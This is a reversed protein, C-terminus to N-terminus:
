IGDPVTTLRSQDVAHDLEALGVADAVITGSEYRLQALAQAYSLEAAVEDLLSQTLRDETLILDVVTSLGLQLKDREDTVASRYLASASRTAEVRAASQRLGNVAVAVNASIIRSVDGAQITAQRYAADSRALVGLARNNATEWDYVISAAANFGAAALPTFLRGAASGEDLGSYGATAAVNMQPRLGDLAATQLVRTERQRQTAAAVDHRHSLAVRILREVLNANALAQSEVPPFREGVLSLSAMQDYPVGMALGVNYRAAFVSQEFQLRQALRDALNAQVQKIDAAPRSDAQILTRTEEVLARARAEADQLIDVNRLAAAYTWYTQVTNLVSQAITQRWDHTTADLDLRSATEGATVIEVGRGRLLPQTLSLSVNARNTAPPQLNLDQRVMEVAPSILLGSRMQKDLAVRYSTQDTLTSTFVGRAQQLQLATLPSNDRSRGFAVSLHPDFQGVASQLVGRSAQVQAEQLRIQPQTVITLRASEVLGIAQAFSQPEAIVVPRTTAVGQAAADYSLLVALVTTGLLRATATRRVTFGILTM